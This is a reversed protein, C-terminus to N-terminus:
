ASWTGRRPRDLVAFVERLAETATRLVEPPLDAFVEEHAASSAKVAAEALQGGQETLCILTGRGDDPDSERTVLGRATLRNVINSTGGSSLLLARGLEGPKLRYPPGSRRLGVLVEYEAPTLDFAPLERRTAADLDAALVLVRKVLETGPGLVEPLESQWAAILQEVRDTM